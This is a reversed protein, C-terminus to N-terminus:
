GIAMVGKAIEVAKSKIVFDSEYRFCKKSNGSSFMQFSIMKKVKMTIDEYAYEDKVEGEILIRVWCLPWVM